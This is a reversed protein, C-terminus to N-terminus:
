KDYKNYSSRQFICLTNNRKVIENIRQETLNGLGFVAIFDEHCDDRAFIPKCTVGCASLHVVANGMRIAAAQVANRCERYLDVGYTDRVQDLKDIDFYEAFPQYWHPNELLADVVANYCPWYGAQKM